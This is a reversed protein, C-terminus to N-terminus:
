VLRVGRPPQIPAQVTGVVRSALTAQVKAKMLAFALDEIKSAQRYSILTGIAQGYYANWRRYSRIQQEVTTVPDDPIQVDCMERHRVVAECLGDIKRTLEDPTLRRPLMSKAIAVGASSMFSEQIKRRLLRYPNRRLLNCQRFAALTGIAQGYTMLLHQEANTRIQRTAEENGKISVHQTNRLQVLRTCLEELRKMALESTEIRTAPDGLDVM